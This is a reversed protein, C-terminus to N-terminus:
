RSGRSGASALRGATRAYRASLDFHVVRNRYTNVGGVESRKRLFAAVQRPNDATKIDIAKCALHLKERVSGHRHNDTHLHTTSIVTVHHFRTELAALVNQLANPVCAPLGAVKAPQAHPDANHAPATPPAAKPAAQEAASPPDQWPIAAAAAVIENATPASQGAAAPPVITQTRVVRAGIGPEDAGAAEIPPTGAFAQRVFSRTPARTVSKAASAQVAPVAPASTQKSAGDILVLATAGVVSFLVAAGVQQVRRNAQQAVIRAALNEDRPLHPPPASIINRM